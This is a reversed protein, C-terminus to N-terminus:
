EKSIKIAGNVLEVKIGNIGVFEIRDGCNCCVPGSVDSDAGVNETEGEFRLLCNETPREVAFQPAGAACDDYLNRNNPEKDDCEGSPVIRCKREPRNINEGVGCLRARAISSSCSM